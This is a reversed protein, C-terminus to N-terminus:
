FRITPARTIIDGPRLFTRRTGRRRLECALALACVGDDHLGDPASYRISGERFEYAFSELEDRLREDGIRISGNQLDNRLGVMLMQKSSSTFRFGEVTNGCTEQLDRVVPDGVGTEDILCPTSKVINEIRRKTEPWDVQFRESVITEGEDNLGVIWTFDFRSALDVGFFVPKTPDPRVGPDFCAAIADLGFPNGGDDAPIGEYEQKFIDDPLEARADEIEQPDIFPNDITGMQCATWNKIQTKGKNFLENFYGSQGKPTGMIIANGRSDSLTPRIAGLWVQRLKRILGAEDIIVVDYYRGRGPDEKDCSWFEIRGESGDVRRIEKDSENTLGLPPQGVIGRLEEFQPDVLKYTPGFWGVRKGHLFAVAAMNVGLSSKGFRRGCRVVSFREMADIISQQGSHLGPIRLESRSSAKALM